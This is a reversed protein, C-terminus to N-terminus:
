RARGARRVARVEEVALQMAEDESLGSARANAELREVARKSFFEWAAQRSVGLAKGIETWSAGARRADAVLRDRLRDIETESRALQQLADLPDRPLAATDIVTM